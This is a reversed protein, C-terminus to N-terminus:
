DENVHRQIDMRENKGQKANTIAAATMKNLLEPTYAIGEGRQLQEDGIQIAARLTELKEDEARMRRIADRIVETTNSYFGTNVKSQLYNEIEASLNIHMTIGM